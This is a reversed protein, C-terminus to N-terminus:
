KSEYSLESGMKDDPSPKMVPFKLPNEMGTACIYNTPNISGIIIVPPM